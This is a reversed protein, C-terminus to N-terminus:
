GDALQGKVALMGTGHSLLLSIVNYQHYGYRALRETMRSDLRKDRGECDCLM